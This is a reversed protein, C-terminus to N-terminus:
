LLEVRRRPDLADRLAEGLLNYSAVTAFILLGPFLRIWWHEAHRSASVLSGWSPVPHQIGFGLFSVVAETLMGGAVAFTAAVLVPGMANPLLHRLVIRTGSLGLARAALVFGSSRLRLFEGRVLRAVGTWAVLAIVVVIFLIPPVVTPEVLAAALLILFLPPISLVVDIVRSVAFDTRGGAYGALAGVAVGIVTLLAAAVLGVSLSVRGGYLVRALLDRGVQDTGLPHRLPHNRAPEGPRVDVPTVAPQFGALADEEPPAARPRLSRGEADVKAGATWTPPRFGEELHTEHVGFALPPFVARTAVIRGEALGSKLDSADRALGRGLLSQGLLAGGLAVATVALWLSGSTRWWTPVLPWALLLLAGAAILGAVGPAADALSEIGQAGHGGDRAIRSALAAALPVGVLRVLRSRRSLTKRRRGAFWALVLAWLAMFFVELPALAALLPASRRPALAVGEPAAASAPPLQEQARRALAAAQQLRARVPAADRAQPGAAVRWAMIELEVALERAPGEQLNRLLVEAQAKMARGEAMAEGYWRVHHAAGSELQADESRALREMSAAIRGAISLAREYEGPHTAELYYPKDNAILPAYIASAHVLLLFWVCARVRPARWLRAALEGWRDPASAPEAM